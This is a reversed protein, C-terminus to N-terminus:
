GPAFTDGAPTNMFLRAHAKEVEDRRTERALQLGRTLINMCCKESFVGLYNREEGVVPAGTINNKLLLDIGDFVNLDPRLTVLRTVMVDRALQPKDKATM